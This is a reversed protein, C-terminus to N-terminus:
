KYAGVVLKLEDDGLFKAVSQCLMYFDQYSFDSKMRNIAQCVLITNDKTYGINSDIREISVTNLKGADLTMELGSYACIMQQDHWFGVVDPIELSFEQNRKKASKKANQLFIKARGEITSNVKIRSKQNGKKCCEKCWSHFGDHTQNHKFFLSFEKTEKCCFCTKM